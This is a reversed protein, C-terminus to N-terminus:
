CEASAFNYIQLNHLRSFLQITIIIITIIITIIIIIIIITTHLSLFAKLIKQLYSLLFTLCKFWPTANRQGLKTERRVLRGHIGWKAERIRRLKVEDYFNM